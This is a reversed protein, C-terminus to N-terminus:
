AKALDSMPARTVVAIREVDEAIASPSPLGALRLARTFAAASRYGVVSAVERALAGPVTMFTAGFMLRRRNRTDIWGASNFGYRQNYEAVIRNVQRASLALQAELDLLMPQGSLNSLVRDLAATIAEDHPARPEDLEAATKRDVPVGIEALAALLASVLEAPRGGDRAARWIEGLRAVVADTARLREVPGGRRGAFGPEWEFAISAFVEGAQRMRIESKSDVAVVDGPLLWVHEGHASIRAEGELLVTVSPRGIRGTRQYARMLLIDENVVRENRVAHLRLGTHVLATNSLSAALSKAQVTRVSRIM